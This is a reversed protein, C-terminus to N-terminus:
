ECEKQANLSIKDIAVWFKLSRKDIWWEMFYTYPVPLRQGCEEIVVDNLSHYIENRVALDVRSQEIMMDRTIEMGRKSTILIVEKRKKM